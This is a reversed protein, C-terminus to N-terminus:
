IRGGRKKEVSTVHGHNGVMIRETGVRIQHGDIQEHDKLFYAGIITDTM